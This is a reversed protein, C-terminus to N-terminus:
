DGRVHADHSCAVHDQEFNNLLRLANAKFLLLRALTRIYEAVCIHEM